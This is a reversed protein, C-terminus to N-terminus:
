ATGISSAPHPRASTTLGSILYGPVILAPAIRSIAPRSSAKAASVAPRPGSWGTRPSSKSGSKKVAWPPTRPSDRYQAEVVSKWRTPAWMM